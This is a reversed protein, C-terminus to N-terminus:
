NMDLTSPLYHICYVVYNLISSIDRSKNLALDLKELWIVIRTVEISLFDHNLWSVKLKSNLDSFEVQQIELLLSLYFFISRVLIKKLEGGGFMNKIIFHYYNAHATIIVLM